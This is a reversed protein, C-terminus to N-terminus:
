TSIPVGKTMLILRNSFIWAPMNLADACHSLSDLFCQHALLIWLSLPLTFPSFSISSTRTGRVELGSASSSAATKKIHGGKKSKEM